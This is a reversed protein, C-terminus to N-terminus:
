VRDLHELSRTPELHARLYQERGLDPRHSLLPRRLVGGVLFAPEKAVLLFRPRERLPHVGVAEFRLAFAAALQDVLDLVLQREAGQARRDAASKQFFSYVRSATDRCRKPVDTACPSCLITAVGDKVEMKFHEPRWDAAKLKYM